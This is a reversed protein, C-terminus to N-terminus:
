RSKPSFTTRESFDDCKERIEHTSNVWLDQRREMELVNPGAKKSETEQTFILNEM